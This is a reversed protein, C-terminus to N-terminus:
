IHILSLCHDGFVAKGKMLLQNDPILGTCINIVDIGNLIRETGPISKFNECETIVAGTIGTHDANPSDRICM